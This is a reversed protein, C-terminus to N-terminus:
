PVLRCDDCEGYKAGHECRFNEDARRREEERLIDMRLFEERRKLVHIVGKIITYRLVRDRHFGSVDFGADTTRVELDEHELRAARFRASFIANKLCVQLTIQAEHNPM